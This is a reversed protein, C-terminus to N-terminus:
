AEINKTQQLSELKEKEEQQADRYRKAENWKAHKSPSIHYGKKNSYVKTFEAGFFILMCSYNIWMMILIITGAKGFTSTPKLEQFYLGLLFKGITFLFATLVAGAWVSKWSIAADPLVKFMFAFVLVVVFFGAVYNVFEMMLYTELGFQQTIFNNLLSVASSLVMTVMLLFGIVLIMGLSNARDLIFKLFAKRPAAQVEWLQNLSKQLQFFITTAGYVLSAIGVIKMFINEKDIMASAVMEEISMAADRGMVKSIQSSIEGQIAEQGFFNGAIWIIIILLGPISFIAYYALSASDNSASSNSWDKYTEVLTEWYFKAQKKM